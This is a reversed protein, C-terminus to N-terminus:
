KKENSKATAAKQTSTSAEVSRPHVAVGDTMSNKKWESWGSVEKDAKVIMRGIVSKENM